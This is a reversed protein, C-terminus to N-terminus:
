IMVSPYLSAAIYRSMMVPRGYTKMSLQGETTLVPEMYVRLLRFYVIIIDNYATTFRPLSMVVVLMFCVVLVSVTKEPGGFLPHMYEDEIQSIFASYKDIFNQRHRTAVRRIRNLGSVAASAVSDTETTSAQSYISADDIALHQNHLHVHM